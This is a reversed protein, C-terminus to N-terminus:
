EDVELPQINSKFYNVLCMVEEETQYWFNIQKVVGDEEIKLVVMYNYGESIDGDLDVEAKELEDIYFPGDVVDWILLTASKNISGKRKWTLKNIVFNKVSLLLQGFGKLMQM